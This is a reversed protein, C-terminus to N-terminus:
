HVQILNCDCHVCKGVEALEPGPLHVFDFTFRLKSCKTCMGFSKGEM